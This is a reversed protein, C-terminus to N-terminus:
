PQVLLPLFPPGHGVEAAEHEEAAAVHWALGLQPSQCWWLDVPLNPLSFKDVVSYILIKCCRFYLFPIFYNALFPTRCLLSTFPRVLSKCSCGRNWFHQSATYFPIHYIEKQCINFQFSYMSFIILLKFKKYIYAKVSNSTVVFILCPLLTFVTQLFQMRKLMKSPSSFALHHWQFYTSKCLTHQHM